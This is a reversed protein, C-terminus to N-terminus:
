RPLRYLITLTAGNGRPPEQRIEDGSEMLRRMVECCVPMRHNAGPYGGARRHLDGANVVVFRDDAARNWIRRIEAEFDAAEPM